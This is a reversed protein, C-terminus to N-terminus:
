KGYQAYYERRYKRRKELNKGRYRQDVASGNGFARSRTARVFADACGLRAAIQQPNLGEALLELVKAKTAM